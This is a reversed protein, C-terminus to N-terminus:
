MDKSPRNKLQKYLDWYYAIPKGDGEKEPTGEQLLALVMEIHTVKRKPKHADIICTRLSQKKSQYKALHGWPFIGHTVPKGEAAM